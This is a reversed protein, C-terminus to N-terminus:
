KRGAKWGRNLYDAFQNPHILKCQKNIPDYVFKKGSIPSAEGTKGYMANLEGSHSKSMKLRTEQNPIRNMSTNSIKAKVEPRNMASLHNTLVKNRYEDTTWLEKMIQIQNERFSPDQWCALMRQRNNEKNIESVIINATGEGGDTLNTLHGTNLDRRGYKKIMEIELQFSEVESLNTQIMEVQIELGENQIQKIKNNKHYNSGIMNLHNWARELKGKGIYFPLDDRPDRLQYVYFINM